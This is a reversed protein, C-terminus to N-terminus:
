QTCRWMGLFALVSSILYNCLWDSESIIEPANLLQTNQPMYSFNFLSLSWSTFILDKRPLTLTRILCNILRKLWAIMQSSAYPKSPWNNFLKFGINLVHLWMMGHGMDLKIYHSQYYNIRSFQLCATIV